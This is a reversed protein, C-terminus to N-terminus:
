TQCAAMESLLPICVQLSWWKTRTGQQKLYHPAELCTTVMFVNLNSLHTISLRKHADLYFFIRGFFYVHVRKYLQILGLYHLQEIFFVHLM